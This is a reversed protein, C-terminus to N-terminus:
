IPLQLPPNIRQRFSNPPRSPHSQEACVLTRRRNHAPGKISLMRQSRNINHCNSWNCPLYVVSMALYRIRLCCWFFLTKQATRLLYMWCITYIGSCNFLWCNTQSHTPQNTLLWDTLPNSRGIHQSYSPVSDSSLESAWLSPFKRWQFGRGLLPLSSMASSVITHTYCHFTFHLWASYWPTRVGDTTSGTCVYIHCSGHNIHQCPCPNIDSM